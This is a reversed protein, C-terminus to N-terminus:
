SGERRKRLVDLDVDIDVRRKVRRLGNMACEIRLTERAKIAITEAFVIRNGARKCPVLRKQLTISIKGTRDDLDLVIANLALKGQLVRLQFGKRDVAFDGWISCIPM